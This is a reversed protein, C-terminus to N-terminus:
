AADGAAAMVRTWFGEDFRSIAAAMPGGAEGHRTIVVQRSPWIYVRKDGAGLAGVLDAPGTPVLPHDLTAGGFFKRPDPPGEGRSPTMARPAGLLWWLYGYAPNMPQSQTMSAALYQRDGLLTTAGWRGGSLVALGFRAMDRASSFLGSLVWGNPDKMAPRAQWSSSRMGLPEFLLEAFLEQTSQGTAAELARRVQHYANNNYYWVRGPEAEVTFDDYLGSCMSLLHRLQIREESAADARSWGKGLWRSVPDEISVLGREALMGVMFSVFSKQASAIDGSADPDTGGWQQDALLRGRSLIVLQHSNREACYDFLESLGAKSWGAETPGVREWDDGSPFYLEESM